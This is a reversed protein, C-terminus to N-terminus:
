GANCCKYVCNTCVGHYSADPFCESGLSLFLSFLPLAALSVSHVQSFKPGLRSSSTQSAEYTVVYAAIATDFEVVIVLGVLGVLPSALWHSFYFCM